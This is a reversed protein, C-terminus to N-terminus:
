SVVAIKEQKMQERYEPLIEEPTGTKKIVNREIWIVEDCDEVTSLRHAIILLTYQGKFSYITKQIAKESRNDLASTAEDFIMVEPHHYLARAISVRQRQGGSLKVGRQGIETDIGNPLSWLFDDMAAMRCCELVRDRDIEDGQYGFAVNEALTGVCIYPDQPVYGINRMWARIAATDPEHGDIVMKGSTPTLLGILLDVLTSKGAGSTGVIGVSKGKEIRLSINDLVKQDTGQYAFSVNQLEVADKFALRKTSAESAAPDLQEIEKLYEVVTQIYPLNIRLKSLQQIMTSVKPVVRRAVLALFVIYGTAWASSTDMFIFFIAVLICVLTISFVELFWGPIQPLVQQLSQLRAEPYVHEHFRKFFLNERGYVKIDKLGYLSKHVNRNIAVKYDKVQTATRDLYVRFRFFFFWALGALVLMLPISISPKIIIISAVLVAVMIFDSLIKLLSHLFQGYQQRWAVAMILDASNRPLHWEHPLQLFGKLTAEGLYAACYKSYLASFYITIGQAINKIVLMLVVLICLAILLTNFDTIMTIGTIDKFQQIYVSQLVQEPNFISVAFFAMVGASVLELGAVLTMALLLLWFQKRRASPLRRFTDKIIELLPLHSRIGM